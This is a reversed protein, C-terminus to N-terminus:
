FLNIEIYFVRSEVFTNFAHQFCRICQLVIDFLKICNELSQCHFIELLKMCSVFSQPLFIKQHSMEGLVMM